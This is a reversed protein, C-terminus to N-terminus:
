RVNARESIASEIFEVFEDDHLSKMEHWVTRLIPMAFSMRIDTQLGELTVFMKEKMARHVSDLHLILLKAFLREEATIPATSLDAAPDLVRALEPREYMQKWIDRHQQAVAIMNSIRRARADARITYVTFLLGCIIGVSQLLDLWHASIWTLVEM